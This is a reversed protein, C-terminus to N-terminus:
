TYRHLELGIRRVNTNQALAEAIELRSSDPVNPEFYECSEEPLVSPDNTRLQACLQSVYLYDAYADDKYDEDDSYEDNGMGYSSSSDSESDDSHYNDQFHDRVDSDVDSSDESDSM